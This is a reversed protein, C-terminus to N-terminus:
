APRPSTSCPRALGARRWSLPNACALGATLSSASRNAPCNPACFPNGLPVLPSLFLAPARFIGVIEMNEPMMMRTYKAGALVIRRVEM